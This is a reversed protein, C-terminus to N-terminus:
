NRAPADSLKGTDLDLYRTRTPATPHHHGSQFYNPEGRVAVDRDQAFANGALDSRVFFANVGALDTHVLRYGKSAGLARLAGLSAGFYETGDWSREPENPQVLQRRPDLASNYEIVVVRPRYSDIAEWVWYDQGDVDISLVDPERPVEAERFLREVNEGTVRSQVTQVRDEAAYKRELSCFSADEAEFFLGCWGAVDALYVCNGQRGSEVGFEVFFRSSVGTRRLIEALVGDEGNQSFVCLEFGSLAVKGPPPGPDATIASHRRQLEDLALFLSRETRLTLMRKVEDIDGILAELQWPIAESGRLAGMLLARRRADESRQDTLKDAVEEISAVLQANVSQQYATFPRMARLAARRVFTRAAGAPPLGARVPGQRIRLPLTAVTGTRDRRSEAGRARGTGRISELHRHIIDGATARSYRQRISSAARRGLEQAADQDEFTRRMLNAAHEVDPEAWEADAPYPDAGPGVPTMHHNVLLSNCADMFDLNGSYATAIVPKGCRMAEALELGFAEARHLSVYCDCLSKVSSGDLRTLDRDIVRVDPHREASELLQGHADQDSDAGACVLVLTAGEGPGFTSRFAEIAALPNQRRFGDHYDFSHMFVFQDDRVGFGARSRSDSAALELPVPVTHVPITIAREVVHAVHTTPVWVEDLMSLVDRVARPIRSVAWFLMGISYRRMLFDRGVQRVYEPLVEGNMCLLNVPFPGDDESTTLYSPGNRAPTVPLGQVAMLPVGEVDLAGVLQRAMRGLPLSSQFDAIINVGWPHTPVPSAATTASKAPVATQHPNPGRLNGEALTPSLDVGAGGTGRALAPVENRGYEEAWRLLAVPDGRKANPYAGRLDASTDYVRGLARNVGAPWGPAQQRMWNEFARAGALTFPSEVQRYEAVFDEYLRSLPAGTRTGDGLARYSYPWDRALAHGENMVDAAYGALLEELAPHDVVDIRDQFVSLALPHAPDFGSFHYFALPNGNVLYDGGRRELTRGHLNWYAVNYEPERVIAVDNLFGPMLDFWRQDVFYGETPAVRCDNILREAWWDLLQSAQPTHALSLFGLNYVGARLIDIQSPRRGDEPIPESNHPIVVVGHRAALEDLRSFAGYIKIDPDLYTVPGGTEQLLHRLLWPKVATSLELVSYRMAMQTFEACGVDTPTLVDFPEQRPDLYGAFEDIVLTQLRSGPHHEALSRALVRAHAVYNKAIITCVQL